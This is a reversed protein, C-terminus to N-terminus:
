EERLTQQLLSEADRFSGADCITLLSKYSAVEFNEFAYNAFSNKLIEDEAFAHGLAAMNGSFKFAADKLASHSEGLGDLVTELREIQQETEGRHSCL